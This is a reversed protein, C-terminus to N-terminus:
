RHRGASPSGPGPSSGRRSRAARAVDLLRARHSDAAETHDAAVGVGHPRDHLTLAKRSATRGPGASTHMVTSPAASSRSSTGSAAPSFWNSHDTVTSSGVARTAGRGRRGAGARPRPRPARRRRASGGARAGLPVASRESSSSSRELDVALPHEHLARVLAWGGPVRRPWARPARRRRGAPWPRGPEVEKADVGVDASGLQVVRGVLGAQQEPLVQGELPAVRRPMRLGPRGGPGSPPRAARGDGTPPWRTRGCRASPWRRPRRRAPRDAAM